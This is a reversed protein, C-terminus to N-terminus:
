ILTEAIRVMDQRRKLSTPGTYVIPQRNFYDMADMIRDKLEQKPAVRIACSRALKSFFGKVAPNRARLMADAAAQDALWFSCNGRRPWIRIAWCPPQLLVKAAHV